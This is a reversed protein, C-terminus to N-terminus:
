DWESKTEEGKKARPAFFFPFLVLKAGISLFLPFCVLITVVQVVGTWGASYVEKSQQGGSGSM